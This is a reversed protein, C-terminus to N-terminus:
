ATKFKQKLETQIKREVDKKKITERKDWKKKGKVLAIETKIFSKQLYFKLPILSLGKTKLKGVLSNIEKKHLLLKRKQEPNYEKQASAAPPYPDIHANILWPIGQTDIKIYSGKLNIRGNKISKVEPGTLVIGAEMTQLIEYDHYAKKNQIIAM